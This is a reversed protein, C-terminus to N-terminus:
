YGSILPNGISTVHIGITHHSQGFYANRDHTMVVSYAEYRRGSQSYQMSYEHQDLMMMYGLEEPLGSPVPM